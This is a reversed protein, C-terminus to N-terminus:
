PKNYFPAAPDNPDVKPPATFLSSDANKLQAYTNTMHADKWIKQEEPKMSFSNTLAAFAEDAAKIVKLIVDQRSQEDTLGLRALAIKQEDAVAQRYFMQTLTVISLPSGKEVMDAVFAQERRIQDTPTTVPHLRAYAESEYNKQMAIQTATANENQAKNNRATEDDRLKQAALQERNVAIGEEALGFEREKLDITELKGLVDMIEAKVGAERANMADSGGMMTAAFSSQGGAGKLFAILSELKSEQEVRLDALQQTYSERVASPAQAVDKAPVKLVSLDEGLMSAVNRENAANREKYASTIGAIGRPALSAQYIADENEPAAPRTAPTATSTDKATTAAGKRAGLDEGLMSAINRENDANTITSTDKATTAAGKRAGLDEGLMSAINRENDANTITSIGRATVVPSDTKTTAGPTVTSIGASSPPPQSLANIKQQYEELSPGINRRAVALEEALSPLAGYPRSAVEPGPVQKARSMMAGVKAAMDTIADLPNSARANRASQTTIGEELPTAEEGVQQRVPTTVNTEEEVQQRVPTTVNAGYMHRFPESNNALHEAQREAYTGGAEQARLRANNEREVTPDQERRPPIPANAGYMHGLELPINEERRQNYPPSEPVSAGQAAAIAAGIDSLGIPPTYTEGRSKAEQNLMYLDVLDEQDKIRQKEKEVRALHQTQREAYTGGAEQARSRAGKVESGKPGAFAIIGGGAMGIQQMNPAPVSAIGQPQAQAAQMQQGLAQLGPAVQQSIENRTMGMVEQARQDKITAAPTQMKAQMDRQAAEKDTKLKQLVLLDILQQNQQYSQALADPNNRYADAKQDIDGLISGIGYAM